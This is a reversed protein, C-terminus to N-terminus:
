NKEMGEKPHLDLSASKRYFQNAMRIVERIIGVYDEIKEDRGGMGITAQLNLIDGM